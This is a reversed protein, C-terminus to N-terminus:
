LIGDPAFFAYLVESVVEAVLHDFDISAVVSDGVFVVSLHHEILIAYCRVDVVLRLPLLEVVEYIDRTPLDHLFFFLSTERGSFVGERIILFDFLHM